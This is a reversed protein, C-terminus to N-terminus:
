RKAFGTIRSLLSSQGNAARAAKAAAKAEAREEACRCRKDRPVGALVQEVHAGCGAYTPRHCRRCEVRSCM